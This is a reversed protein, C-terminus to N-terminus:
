REGENQKTIVFLFTASIQRASPPDLNINTKIMRIKEKKM